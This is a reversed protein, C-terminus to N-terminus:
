FESKKIFETCYARQLRRNEAQMTTRKTAKMTELMKPVSAALFADLILNAKPVCFM